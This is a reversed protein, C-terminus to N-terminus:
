FCLQLVHEHMRTVGQQKFRPNEDLVERSELLEIRAVDGYLARVEDPPVSFPPGNREAQPYEMVVLLMVTGAPLIHALHQAYRRRLDPPLAILAARDYVASVQAMDERRLDFFDGCLLRIGDSELAAFKGQLNRQATAGQGTFFAEVAIGSLEVGLVAHGQERLWLMDLSKGCLPVFVTGAQPVDLTPWHRLLWPNIENLHFGIEGNRWREHWFDHEM